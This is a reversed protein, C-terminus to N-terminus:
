AFCLIVSATFSMELIITNDNSSDYPLPQYSNPVIDKIETGLRIGPALLDAYVTDALADIEDLAEAPNNFGRKFIRVTIGYDYFHALQNAPGSTVVGTELHFSKDIVTAGINAFNFADRHETFGLGELRERFLSRVSALGM